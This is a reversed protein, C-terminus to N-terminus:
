RAQNDIYLRITEIWLEYADDKLHVGDRTLDPNMVGNKEYQSYLDIYTCGRDEALRELELNFSRIADNDINYQKGKESSIPLVSQIFIESGPLNEQIENIIKEYRAVYPAITVRTIGNIGGMIFVKEPKVSYLMDIREDMDELSNGQVGLNIVKHNPFWRQWKGGATISDGFFAIDADYNLQELSNRWGIVTSDNSSVNSREVGCYRYLFM